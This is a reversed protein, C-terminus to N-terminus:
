KGLEVLPPNLLVCQFWLNQDRYAAIRASHIKMVNMQRQEQGIPWVLCNNGAVLTGNSYFGCPISAKIKWLALGVNMFLFFYFHHLYIEFLQLGNELVSLSKLHLRTYPSLLPISFVSTLHLFQFGTPM